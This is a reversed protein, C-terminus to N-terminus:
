NHMKLCVKAKKTKKAQNGERISEGFGMEESRWEPLLNEGNDQM